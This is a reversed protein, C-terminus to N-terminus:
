LNCFLFQFDELLPCKQGSRIAPADRPHPPVGGAKSIKNLYDHFNLSYNMPAGRGSPTWILSIKSYKNVQYDYNSPDGSPYNGSVRLKKEPPQGSSHQQM